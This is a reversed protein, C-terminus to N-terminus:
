PVARLREQEEQRDVRFRRLVDESRRMGAALARLPSLFPAVHTLSQIGRAHPKATSCSCQAFSGASWANTRTDDRAQYFRKYQAWDTGKVDCRYVGQVAVLARMTPDINAISAQPALAREVRLKETAHGHMNAIFTQYRRETTHSVM